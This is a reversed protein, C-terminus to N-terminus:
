LPPEDIAGANSLQAAIALLLIFIYCLDQVFVSNDILGHSILNVMSGIVGIVIAYFLPPTGRFNREAQRIAKWFAYQFAVLLAVGAIGLRVWFDLIIDHPHSLDPEQWADPMIYHGRFAYLFQDLGLGTIPHDHIVTLASQWVRIRFFNTGSDFELVRAFRASQLSILFGVVGIVVLALLIRRAWKGGYVLLVAVIAAPVGIFIAGVSQSLIVAIGMVGLVIGSVVRRVYDLPSILFALAFPICRGLFLGVNNPSGYVSAMRRAGAEATIVGEGQIFQWLGIVAVAFGALLLADVLSLIIKRDRITIRFIAYFLAPEIIMVRLETIAKDPLQAWSLSILGLIVFATVSYDLCTVANRWAAYSPTRFNNSRRRIAWMEVLRLVWAASTILVILESLPFAFRYLEVPFLFFPTWFVTLMLGIELRNYILIFLVLAAVVALILGPQLYLLGTSIIALGLQASERRFINPTSDGWTLLMGILLALSTIFGLGLQGAANIRKGLPALRSFLSRWSIQWGAVVASVLSVLVAIWAVNLKYNYPAVLDGTSIGYGVLVWRDWGRDAVIHLSHNGSGLNKAVPVLSTEPLESGSTLVLYANGSADKPTANAPLGDVTPYFYAVFNDKRLLLSLDQGTFDFDLQSDQVWGVDAGMKGFTWVGSYRAFSNVPSYLGNGAAIPDTRQALADYLGTPKNQQDILSFGWIPDDDQASPQWMQLIMGALWPWEREARDLASVTYSIQQDQTVSGWISPRGSWSEPLSNWGWNMAWIAKAGDGNRVMEERLLILRSFNLVEPDVVRNEPSQDFGYPKAGVADMYNQAGFAYLDRLYLVDSINKPGTETTPALAGAIVTANSDAGHIGTYTEKLLATYDAPRPEFGGWTAILNPEDWVQYYDVCEGYRAAFEKAFAAFDSPSAPPTTRDNSAPQTRAWAPTYMFVAVIHLSPHRNIQEFVRDWEDWVYHGQEAEIEDWPFIQRVWTIHADAMLQLQQNLEAEAYQSLDANVGIQPVKFPLNADASADVYGRLEFDREKQTAVVTVLSGLLAVLAVAFIIYQRKM